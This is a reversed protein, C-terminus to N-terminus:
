SLRICHQNINNIGSAFKVDIIHRYNLTQGEVQETVIALLVLCDGAKESTWLINRIEYPHKGVRLFSALRVVQLSYLSTRMNHNIFMTNNQGTIIRHRLCSMLDISVCVLVEEQIAM